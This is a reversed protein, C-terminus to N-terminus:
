GARRLLRKCLGALRGHRVSFAHLRRAIAMATPGMEQYSALELRTRELRGALDDIHAQMEHISAHLLEARHHHHYPIFDDFINVPTSLAPLLERDEARVYWRNIGDFLGPVYDAKILVDEWHDHTAIMTNPAVAEVVVIRPRWQKWDGGELVERELGEVDIKLFDIHQNAHQECVRALTTLAVPSEVVAVGERRYAAAQEASMTAWGLYDPTQYLTAGGERNSLCVQLNVDRPLETAHQEYYTTLPEINVGRWGRDYFHKTVSGIVPHAAGIDLYFGADRDPFARRLLVDEHNQAYSIMQM